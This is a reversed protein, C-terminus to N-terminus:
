IPSAVSTAEFMLLTDSRLGLRLTKLGIIDSFAINAMNANAGFHKIFYTQLTKNPAEFILDSAQIGATAIENILGFRIEGDSRCIGGKGDERAELIVKQAGAELDQNIYELWKAPHLEMSRTNDKFGVESFVTFEGSFSKIYKAKDPNSLNVTGNSIELHSVKLSKLHEIFKDLSGQLLAKEFFTGGMVVNVDHRKAFTIKANIDPTIMSTCWGFKVYDIYPHFSAIVDEFYSNSYGTDILMTLGRARPKPAHSPLNLFNNM